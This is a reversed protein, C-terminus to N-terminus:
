GSLRSAVDLFITRTQKMSSTLRNRLDDGSSGILCRALTELSPGTPLVSGPEELTICMLKVVERYFLYTSLLQARAGESLVPLNETRLIEPVSKGRLARGDGRLRIQIMQVLFEVDAMGGPGLKIDLLEPGRTKTRTEMKRRMAVTDQSWGVPLPAEYVFAEAAKIVKRGLGEHGCIFRLRTLSQREWLSAREKLYKGYAGLGVVLPSNRGEPRLRADVEYLRGLESVESLRRMIGSAAKETADGKLVAASDAVFLLDIDADFSLEKTGFKGLALVAFSSARVRGKRLERATVTGVIFDALSSLEQTLQEFSSFGLVHRVGARLEQQAKFEALETAPPLTVMMGSALSEIDSAITELLLPSRSLGRAFRPSVACIDLIFKRFQPERLENYVQQPFPEATVLQVLNRLTMDPDPTKAIERFLSPAVSRLADRARADFESSGALSTGTLGKLHRAAQRLDRLGFSRLIEDRQDDGIGGDIVAAIGDPVTQNRLSLVLDFIKRVATLHGRVAKQLAVATPQDMRKAIGTLDAEDSPLTHTQINLLTQLRHELTRYFVYGDTLVSGEPDTLLGDSVLAEIARMTNPERLNKKKGGNLLQLAQVIFEIDRIGGAMLKINAEDGVKAEIRAKIRAISEAPHHFFTRPYVFPQLLDIFQRGLAADGGVPRAKILMQREWLEGRSEYYVLFSRLSRALPGAGSEPRLRTDVRYLYGEASSQSLNQVLREALKNFYEHHTTTRGDAGQTEGEEGYVFLIDIDSSYNLESGGLKGLGIVAFPTRPPSPYKDSLQEMAVSLAADVALDALDSLQLTVGALSAFKMIDQAGIRLLERRQLRKVADLRREPKEFTRRLRGIEEELRGKSLPENMASSTTLWRFLGPERVLIDAFYRSYGFLKTLLELYAPYHLLDNFLSAKSFSAETFRLMNTLAMDPDPSSAFQAHLARSFEELPWAAGSKIYEEHITLLNRSGAAPDRFFGTPIDHEPM